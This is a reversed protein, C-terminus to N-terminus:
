EPIIGRSSVAKWDPRIVNREQIKGPDKKSREQFM